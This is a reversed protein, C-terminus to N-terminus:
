LVDRKRGQIWIMIISGAVMLIYTLIMAKYTVVYNQLPNLMQMLANSAGATNDVMIGDAIIYCAFPTM